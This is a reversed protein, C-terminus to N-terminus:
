LARRDGRCRGNQRCAPCGPKTPKTKREDFDDATAGMKEFLGRVAERRDAQRCPVVSFDERLQEVTSLEVHGQGRAQVAAISLLFAALALGWQVCRKM